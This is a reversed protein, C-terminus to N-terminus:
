RNHPPWDRPRGSSPTDGMHEAYGHVVGGNAKAWYMAIDALHLLSEPDRGAQDTTTYGVSAVIDIQRGHLVFPVQNIDGWARGAVSITRDLGGQVILTFEDGSLRAAFVDSQGLRRLREAVQALLTNGARHGLRDNVLKFGVLDLVIVGVESDTTVAHTLREIAARRNPLRTTDDETAQRHYRDRESRLTEVLGHANLVVRDLKRLRTRARTLLTWLRLAWLGAVALGALLGGAATLLSNATQSM